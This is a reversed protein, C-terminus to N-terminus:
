IPQQNLIRIRKDTINLLWVCVLKQIHAFNANMAQNLLASNEDLVVITNM